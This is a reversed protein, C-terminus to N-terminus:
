NSQFLLFFIVEEYWKKPTELSKAFNNAIGKGKKLNNVIKKLPRQFTKSVHQKEKYEKM